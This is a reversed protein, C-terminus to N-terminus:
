RGDPRGDRPSRGHRRQTAFRTCRRLISALSSALRTSRRRSALSRAGRFTVVHTQPTGSGADLREWRRLHALMAAIAQRDAPAESDAGRRGRPSSLRRQRYRGMLPGSRAEVVCQSGSGASQRYLRRDPARPGLTAIPAQRDAKGRSGRAGALVDALTQRARLANAM